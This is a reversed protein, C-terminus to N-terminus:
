GDASRRAAFFAKLLTEAPEARIGEYVEPAHHAQPHSFVCAGHAVGGSKPDSAGYYVRRIRAAAIAAACMACPELTVYLDHGNLRESGAAACAERIVLVEAHATPDSWERTRNGARAVVQGAPSILVAGVPVEGRAAAARAEALAIDMHSRFPM